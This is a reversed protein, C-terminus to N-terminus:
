MVVCCAAKQSKSNQGSSVVSEYVQPIKSVAAALFSPSREIVARQRIDTKDQNTCGHLCGIM